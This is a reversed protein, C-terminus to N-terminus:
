GMFRQKNQIRWTTMFSSYLEEFLRFYTHEMPARGLFLQAEQEKRQMTGHSAESPEYDSIDNDSQSEEM